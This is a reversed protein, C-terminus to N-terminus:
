ISGGSQARVDEMGFGGDDSSSVAHYLSAGALKIWMISIIIGVVFCLLGAFFIPIGLLGIFFVKWAHGRTMRWSEKVADIVEM